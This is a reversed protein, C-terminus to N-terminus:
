ELEITLDRKNPTGARFRYDDPDDRIGVKLLIDARQSAFHDRGEEDYSKSM